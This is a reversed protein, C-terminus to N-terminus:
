GTRPILGPGSRPAVERNANAPDGPPMSADMVAGGDLNSWSARVDIELADTPMFIMRGRVDKSTYFDVEEDLFENDIQGDSDKYAASVRFLAKDPAIPGSIAGAVSAPGATVTIPSGVNQVFGTNSADRLLM